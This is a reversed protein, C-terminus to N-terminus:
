VTNNLVDCYIGILNNEIQTSITILTNDNMM